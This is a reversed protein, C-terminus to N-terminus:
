TATTLARSVIGFENTIRYASNSHCFGRKAEPCHCNGSVLLLLLESPKQRRPLQDQSELSRREMVQNKMKLKSDEPKKYKKRTTEKPRLTQSDKALDM